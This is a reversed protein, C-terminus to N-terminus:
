TSNPYFSTTGPLQIANTSHWVGVSASDAQANIYVASLDGTDNAVLNANFSLSTPGAMVLLPQQDVVGVGAVRLERELTSVAFRSNSQADLRGSQQAVANAQKRFLQTSLGIITLMLTMSIMIEILTFGRRARGFSRSMPAEM